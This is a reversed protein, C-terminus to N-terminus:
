ASATRAQSFLCFGDLLAVALLQNGRLAPQTVATANAALM